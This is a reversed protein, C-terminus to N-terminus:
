LCKITQPQKAVKLAHPRFGISQTEFIIETIQKLIYVTVM